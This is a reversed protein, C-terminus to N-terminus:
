EDPQVRVLVLSNLFALIENQDNTSLDRFEEASEAAEGGHALIAETITTARGDHLYPATSGVGWLEKTLWVSNGFGGDDVTEALEPGMDHRKLDGYLRVIGNGNDDLELNGLPVNESGDRFINDPIDRALDVIIPNDPTVGVSVPDDGSPFVLDRHSDVASPEAFVTSNLTLSPTHCGTCGIQAFRREGDDIDDDEEDTLPEMGLEELLGLDDLEIRDVPRPQSALYIAMASMDGFFMEREVGDFDGDVNTGVLEEAQVGIDNHGAGRNFARLTAQAGKWGFPRIVLDAEIGELGRTDDRRSQCSVRMRGFSIGKAELEVTETRRSRCARERADDRAGQLEVTMEEALLQLAGGGLVSTTNRTIFDNIEGSNFVDSVINLATAGAGASPNEHCINCAEGDPGSRRQPTHNAWQGFGTLDARPVGTYRNFDGVNGGGGDLVNFPVEFLGQGCDRAFAFRESSSKIANLTEQECHIALPDELISLLPLNSLDLDRQAHVASSFLLATSVSYLVPKFFNM